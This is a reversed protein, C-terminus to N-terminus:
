CQEGTLEVRTFMLKLTEKAMEYVSLVSSFMIGHSINMATYKEKFIILKLQM